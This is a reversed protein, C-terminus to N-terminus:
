SIKMLSTGRPFRFLAGRALQVSTMPKLRAKPARNLKGHEERSASEQRGRPDRLETGTLVKKKGHM